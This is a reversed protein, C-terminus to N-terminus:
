RFEVSELLAQITPFIRERDIPHSARFDARVEIWRDPFGPPSLQWWVVFVDQTQVVEFAAPKGGIIGDADLGYPRRTVPEPEPPTGENFATIVVSVQAEPMTEGTVLCAESPSTCQEDPQLGFSAVHAIVRQGNVADADGPYLSWGQEYRFSIEDSAFEQRADEQGFASYIGLMVAGIIAVASAIVLFATAGNDMPSRPADAATPRMPRLPASADAMPATWHPPAAVSHALDWGARRTRDSLTYWAENIRSM